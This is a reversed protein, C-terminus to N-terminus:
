RKGSRMAVVILAAVVVLLLALAPFRWDRFFNTSAGGRPRTPGFALADTDNPLPGITNVKGNGPDITILDARSTGGFNTNVAYLVGAPSYALGNILDPFPAGTLQPGTSIGGTVLDVLDLTGGGGTAAILARGGGILALGGKSAGQRLPKGRPTAEGTELNVTGLQGKDALWIYLTGDADFAIDSGAFGLKGVLQVNGSSPDVRVLSQPIAKSTPATIGYFEGTGPHIALGDLGIPTDGVHLSTLLTLAATAPDVVYINGEVGSYGPDSYTRVSVAYLTQAAAATSLAAAFLGFAIARKM